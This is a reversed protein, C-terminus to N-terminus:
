IWFSQKESTCWIPWGTSPEPTPAVRGEPDTYGGEKDEGESDSSLLVDTALKEFQEAIGEESLDPEAIIFTEIATIDQPELGQSWMEENKMGADVDLMSQAAEAM